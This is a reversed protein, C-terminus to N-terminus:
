RSNKLGVAFLSCQQQSHFGLDVLCIILIFVLKLRSNECEVAMNRVSMSNLKMDM